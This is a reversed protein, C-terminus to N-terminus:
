NFLHPGQASGHRVDERGAVVHSHSARRHWRRHRELYGHQVEHLRERAHSHSRDQRQTRPYDKRCGQFDPHWGSCHTSVMPASPAVMMGVGMTASSAKARDIMSKQKDNLKKDGRARHFVHNWTTGLQRVIVGHRAAAKRVAGISEKPVLWVRTKTLPLIHRTAKGARKKIAAYLKRLRPRSFAATGQSRVMILPVHEREAQAVAPGAALWLVCGILPM